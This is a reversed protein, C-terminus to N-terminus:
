FSRPLSLNWLFVTPLLAVLQPAVIALDDSTPFLSRSASTSMQGQVDIGQSGSTRGDTARLTAWVPTSGASRAVSSKAWAGRSQASSLRWPFRRAHNLEHPERVGILAFATKDM